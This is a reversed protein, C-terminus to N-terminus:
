ESLQILKLFVSDGPHTPDYRLILRDGARVPRMSEREFGIGILVQSTDKTRRM